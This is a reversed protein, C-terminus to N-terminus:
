DKSTNSYSLKRKSRMKSFTQALRAEKGLTGPARAKEAAYESTSKGAAAAKASFKGPSKVASKIWNRKKPKDTMPGGRSLADILTPSAM